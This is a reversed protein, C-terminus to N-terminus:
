RGVLFRSESIIGNHEMQLFYVGPSLKRLPFSQSQTGSALIKTLTKGVLKGRCDIISFSTRGPQTLAFLAVLMNQAFRIKLGQEGHGAVTQMVNAPAQLDFQMWDMNWSGDKFTLQIVQLGTDLMVSDVNKTVSWSHWVEPCGSPLPTDVPMNRISDIKVQQGDYYTLTQLNPLYANAEHFSVYYMGATNVHVSYKEWEGPDGNTYYTSPLIWALHWFGTEHQGPNSGFIFDNGGFAQMSVIFDAQIQQGAANLRMSGGSNSNGPYHFGVGEGGSDFFVCLVRGPIQQYHGKLTDCCYPKGAYGAPIAANASSWVSLVVLLSLGVVPRKSVSFPKM